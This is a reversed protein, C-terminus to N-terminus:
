KILKSPYSKLISKEDVIQPLPGDDWVQGSWSSIDDVIKANNYASKLAEKVHIKAFEIMIEKIYKVDNDVIKAYISQALGFENDNIKDIEIGFKECLLEEATPIKKM